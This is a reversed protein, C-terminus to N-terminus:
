KLRDEIVSKPQEHAPNTANAMITAQEIETKDHKAILVLTEESLLKTIDIIYRRKKILTPPNEIDGETWLGRQYKVSDCDIPDNYECTVCNHGKMFKDGCPINLDLLVPVFSELESTSRIYDTRGLAILDGYTTGDSKSNYRIKVLALVKM